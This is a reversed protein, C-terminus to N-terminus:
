TKWALGDGLLARGIPGLLHPGLWIARSVCVCVCLLKSHKALEVSM